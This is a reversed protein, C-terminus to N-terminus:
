HRHNLLVSAPLRERHLFVFADAGMSVISRVSIDSLFWPRLYMCVQGKMSTVAVASRAYFALHVHISSGSERSTRSAFCHHNQAMAKFWRETGGAPVLFQRRQWSLSREM